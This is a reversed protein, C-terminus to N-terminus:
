KKRELFTVCILSGIVFLCVLTVPGNVRNETQSVGEVSLSKSIMEHLNFVFMLLFVVLMGFFNLRGTDTTFEFKTALKFAKLAGHLSREILIFALIVLLISLGVSLSLNILDTVNTLKM